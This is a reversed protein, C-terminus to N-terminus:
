YFNEDLDIDNAHLMDTVDDESMWNLCMTVVDQLSIMGNECMEILKNTNERVGMNNVRWM